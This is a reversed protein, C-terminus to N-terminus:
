IEFLWVGGIIADAIDGDGTGFSRVQVLRGVRTPKATGEIVGRDAILNYHRIKEERENIELFTFHNNNHNLPRFHVLRVADWSCIFTLGDDLSGAMGKGRERIRNRNLM